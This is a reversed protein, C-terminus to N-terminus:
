GARQEGEVMLRVIGKPMKAVNRVKAITGTEYLGELGPQNEDPDRQTVLFIRQDHEMAAEVARISRERSVDFHLMMSPLVTLGRLPLMPMANITENMVTM